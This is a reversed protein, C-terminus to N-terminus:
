VLSPIQAPSILRGEENMEPQYRLLGDPPLLEGELNGNVPMGLQCSTKPFRIGRSSACLSEDCLSMVAWLGYDVPDVFMQRWESTPIPLSKM